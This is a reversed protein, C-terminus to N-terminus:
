AERWSSAHDLAREHGGDSRPTHGIFRGNGTNLRQHPAL